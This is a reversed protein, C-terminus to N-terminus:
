DPKTGVKSAVAWVAQPKQCKSGTPSCDGNTLIHAEHVWHIWGGLCTIDPM